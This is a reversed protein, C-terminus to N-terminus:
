VYNIHVRQFLWLLSVLLFLPSNKTVEFQMKRLRSVGWVEKAIEKVVQVFADGSKTFDCFPAQSVFLLMYITPLFIKTFTERQWPPLVDVTTYDKFKKRKTKSRTDSDSIDDNDSESESDSYSPDTYKKQSSKKIKM